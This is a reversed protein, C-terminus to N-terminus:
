GISWCSVLNHKNFTCVMYVDEKAVKSIIETVNTTNPKRHKKDPADRETDKDSNRKTVM